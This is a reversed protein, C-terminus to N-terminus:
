SSSGNIEIVVSTPTGYNGYAVAVALPRQLFEEWEGAYLKPYNTQVGQRKLMEEFAEYNVPQVYM